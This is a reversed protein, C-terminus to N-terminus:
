QFSELVSAQSNQSQVIEKELSGVIRYMYLGFCVLLLGCAVMMHVTISQHFSGLQM